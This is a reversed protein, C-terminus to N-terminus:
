GPPRFAARVAERVEARASATDVQSLVRLAEPTRIAGLARAARSQYKAVYNARYRTLYAAESEAGESDAIRTHSARLTRELSALRDAPPGQTLHTSLTQVASEGLAVVAALEGDQCEECEMWQGVPDTPYAPMQTAPQEANSDSTQSPTCAALSTLLVAFLTTTKM